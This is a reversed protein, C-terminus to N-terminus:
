GVKDTLTADIQQQLKQRVAEDVTSEAITGVLLGIASFVALSIIATALTSEADVRDLLGRVVVVAMALLGLIGAYTRGVARRWNGDFKGWVNWSLSASRPPALRTM